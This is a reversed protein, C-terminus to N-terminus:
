SIACGLYQLALTAEQVFRFAEHATQFRYPGRRTAEGGGLPFVDAQVITSGSPDDFCRLTALPQSGHTAQRVFESV